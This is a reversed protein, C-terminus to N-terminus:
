DQYNGPVVRHFEASNRCGDVINIPNRHLAEATLTSVSSNNIFLTGSLLAPRERQMPLRLLRAVHLICNGLLASRTLLRRGVSESTSFLHHAARHSPGQDFSLHTDTPTGFHICRTRRLVFVTMLHNYNTFSGSCGTTSSYTLFVQPQSMMTATFTTQCFHTRVVSFSSFFLVNVSLGSSVVLFGRM